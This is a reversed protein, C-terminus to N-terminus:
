ADHQWQIQLRIEFGLYRSEWEPLIAPGSDGLFSYDYVHDTYDFKDTYALARQVSKLVSRIRAERAEPNSQAMTMVAVQIRFMRIELWQDDEGLTETDYDAEGTFVYLHPLTNSEMNQPPPDSAAVIVGPLQTPGAIEDVILAPIIDTSSTATPM